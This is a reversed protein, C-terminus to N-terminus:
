GISYFARRTRWRRQSLDNGAADFTRIEKRVIDAHDTYIAILGARGHRCFLWGLSNLPRLKEGALCRIGAANQPRLQQISGPADMRIRRNTGDRLWGVIRIGRVDSKGINVVRFTIVDTGGFNKIEVDSLKLCGRVAGHTSRVTLLGNLSTLLATFGGALAITAAIIWPIDSSWFRDRGGKDNDGKKSEAADGAGSRQQDAQVVIFRIQDGNTKTASGDDQHARAPAAPLEQQTSTPNSEKASISAPAMLVTLCAISRLPLTKRSTLYSM